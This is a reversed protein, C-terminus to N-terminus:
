ADTLAYVRLIQRMATVMLEENMMAERLEPDVSSHM